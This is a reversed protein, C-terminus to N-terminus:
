LNDHGLNSTVRPRMGLSAKERPGPWGRVVMPPTATSSYSTRASGSAWRDLSPWAPFSRQRGTAVMVPARTTIEKRRPNVVIGHAAELLRTRDARHLGQVRNRITGVLEKSLRVIEARAGLLDLGGVLLGTASLQDLLKVIESDGGLLKVADQYCFARRMPVHHLAVAHSPSSSWRITTTRSAALAVAIFRCLRRIQTIQRPHTAQGLGIDGAGTLALQPLQDALPGLQNRQETAASPAAANPRGGAPETEERHTSPPPCSLKHACGGALASTPDTGSVPDGITPGDAGPGPRGLLVIVDEPFGTM